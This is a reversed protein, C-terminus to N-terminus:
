MRAVELKAPHQINSIPYQINSASYHINSKVFPFKEEKIGTDPRKFRHDDSMLKRSKSWFGNNWQELM